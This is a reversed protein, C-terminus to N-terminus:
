FVAIKVAAFYTCSIASHIGARCALMADLAPSNWLMM